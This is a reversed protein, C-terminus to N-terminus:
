RGNPLVTGFFCNLYRYKQKPRLRRIKQEKGM